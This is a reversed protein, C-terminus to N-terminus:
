MWVAFERPMCWRRPRTSVPPSSPVNPFPLRVSERVQEPSYSRYIPEKAPQVDGRLFLCVGAAINMMKVRDPRVEFHSPM